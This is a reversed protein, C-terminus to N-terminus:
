TRRWHRGRCLDICTKYPPVVTDVSLVSGCGGFRENGCGYVVHIIGMQRLAAACMICPEVTVFLVVDAMYERIDSRDVGCEKLIKDFAVIEAHRTGNKDRNTENAGMAIVTGNRVYVCGVPVEKSHLAANAADLAMCMYKHLDDEPLDM